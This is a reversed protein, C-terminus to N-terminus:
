IGSIADDHRTPMAPNAILASELHKLLTFLHLIAMQTPFGDLLDELDVNVCDKSIVDSHKFGGM